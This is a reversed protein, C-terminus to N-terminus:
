TAAADAGGAEVPSSMERMVAAYNRGDGPWRIVSWDPCRGCFGHGSFENELHARRLAAMEPGTWVERVSADRLSGIEAEHKWDAPCFTFKGDPKVVLREWPYLCPYRLPPAERWMRETAEPVSGAASHCTRIVVHDAGRESWYRRFPEVEADNIPQRVFSVMVKATGAEKARAILNLTNERAIALDGKVRVQAYTEPEFADLSVDFVTVGADLLARIREGTLLLGNTTLNIPLGTRRKAYSLLSALKPHLLPEGDGTYRLYRCRGKGDEAVEDILKRHLAEDLHRRGAGKLKTVTEYPCHVCALNCFETVDIILQSPFEASLEGGFGYRM